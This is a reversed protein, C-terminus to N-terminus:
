CPSPERRAGAPKGSRGHKFAYPNGILFTGDPKHAGGSNGSNRVSKEASRARAMRANTRATKKSLPQKKPNSNLTEDQTHENTM